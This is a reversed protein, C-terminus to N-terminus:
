FPVQLVGRTMVSWDKAVVAPRIARLSPGTEIEYLWALREEALRGSDAVLSSQTRRLNYGPYIRLGDPCPIAWLDASFGADPTAPASGDQGLVHGTGGHREAFARFSERDALAAAAADDQGGLHDVPPLRAFSSSPMTYEHGVALRESTRSYPAVDSPNYKAPAREGAATGHNRHRLDFIDNNIRSIRQELEVRFRDLQQGALRISILVSVLVIFIIGVVAFAAWFLQDFWIM